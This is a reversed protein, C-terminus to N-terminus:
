VKKMEKVTAEYSKGEQAAKLLALFIKREDDPKGAMIKDFEVLFYVKEDGSLKKFAEFFEKVKQENKPTEMM